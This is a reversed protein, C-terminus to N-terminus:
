KGNLYATHGLKLVVVYTVTPLATGQPPYHTSEALYPGEARWLELCFRSIQSLLSYCSPHHDLKPIAKDSQDVFTLLLNM